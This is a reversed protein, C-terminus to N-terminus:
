NNEEEDDGGFYNDLAGSIVKGQGEPTGEKEVAERVKEIEEQTKEAVEGDHKHIDEKSEYVLRANELEDITRRQGEIKAKQWRNILWFIGGLLALILPWIKGILDFM